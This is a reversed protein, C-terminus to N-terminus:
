QFEQSHQNKALEIRSKRRQKSKKKWEAEKQIRQKGEEIYKELLARYFEGDAQDRLPNKTIHFNTLAYLIRIVQDYKSHEWRWRERLAGWLQTARGYFNEAIVRDKSIKKNLEEEATSVSGKQVVYARLGLKEAGDFAKDLLIGWKDPALHHKVGNDVVNADTVDKATVKRYVDVNRTLMTM